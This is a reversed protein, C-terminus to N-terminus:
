FILLYGCHCWGPHVQYYSDVFMLPYSHWIFLNNGRIPNWDPLLTEVPQSWPLCYWVLWASHICLSLLKLLVAVEQLLYMIWLCFLFLLSIFNAGWSELFSDFIKLIYLSTTYHDKWSSSSSLHSDKNSALTAPFGYTSATNCCLVLFHSHIEM